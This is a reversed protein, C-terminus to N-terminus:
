RRAAPLGSPARTDVEERRPVFAAILALLGAVIHFAIDFGTFGTPLIGLLDADFIAIVGMLLYVIGVLALVTSLAARRVHAFGVWLLAIAIVIRAIDLPLDVNAFGGFHEGEVFLGAVALLAVVIGLIRAIWKAFM